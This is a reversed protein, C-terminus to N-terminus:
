KFKLKPRGLSPSKKQTDEAELSRHDKILEVANTDGVTAFAAKMMKHEEETYPYAMNNKGAFSEHDMSVPATTRGDAMGAAKMVQNLNYLRDVGSDKFKYAGKTANAAVKDMSGKAESVFERARM